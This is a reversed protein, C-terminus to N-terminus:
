ATIAGRHETTEVRERCSARGIKPEASVTVASVLSTKSLTIMRELVLRYRMTWPPRLASSTRRIGGVDSGCFILNATSFYTGRISSCRYALDEADRPPAM